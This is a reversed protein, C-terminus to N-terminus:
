FPLDPEEQFVSVGQGHQISTTDSNNHVSTSEDDKKGSPLFGIHTVSLTVSAKPTGDRGMYARPLELEGSVEVGSGKKLYKLIWELSPLNKKWIICQVWLTKDRGANVGVNFLVMEEDNKTKKTEPNQGLHGSISLLRM